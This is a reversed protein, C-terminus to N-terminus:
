TFLEKEHVFRGTAYVQDIVADRDMLYTKEKAIMLNSIRSFGHLPEDQKPQSLKLELCPNQQNLLFGIGGSALSDTEGGMPLATSQARQM